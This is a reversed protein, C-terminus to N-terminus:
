DDKDEGGELDAAFREAKEYYDELDDGLEDHVFRNTVDVLQRAEDFHQKIHKNLDIVDGEVNSYLEEPSKKYGHPRCETVESDMVWVDELNVTFQIKYEDADLDPSLSYPFLQEHQIYTRLGIIVRTNEHYKQFQKEIREGSPLRERLTDFVREFTYASSLYNHIASRLHSKFIPHQWTGGEFSDDDAYDPTNTIFYEFQGKNFEVMQLCSQLRRLDAVTDQASHSELELAGKVTTSIWEDEDGIVTTEITTEEDVTEIRYSSECEPCAYESEVDVDDKSSSSLKLRRPDIERDCDPCNINSIQEYALSYLNPM